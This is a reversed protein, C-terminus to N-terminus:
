KGRIKQILKVLRSTFFGERPDPPTWGSMRKEYRAQCRSYELIASLPWIIMGIVLFTLLSSFRQSPPGELVFLAICAAITMFILPFVIMYGLWLRYEYSDKDM